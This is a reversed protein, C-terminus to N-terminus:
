DRYRAHTSIELKLIDATQRSAKEISEDQLKDDDPPLLCHIQVEYNGNCDKVVVESGDDELSELLSKQLEASTSTSKSPFRAGIDRHHFLTRRVGSSTNSTPRRSSSASTSTLSSSSLKSVM